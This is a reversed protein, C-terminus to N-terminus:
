PTSTTVKTTDAKAEPAKKTQEATKSDEKMKAILAKYTPEDRLAVLDDDQEIFTISKFGKDVAQALHELADSPRGLRAEACAVDYLCLSENYGLKLAQWFGVLADEYHGLKHRSFALKFTAEADKPQLKTMRDYNRAARGWDEQVFAQQASVTVDELKTTQVTSWALYGGAALILFSVVFLLRSM